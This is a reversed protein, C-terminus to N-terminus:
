VDENKLMPMREEDDKANKDKVKKIEKMEVEKNDKRAKKLIEDESVVKIQESGESHDISHIACDLYM